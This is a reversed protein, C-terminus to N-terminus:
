ILASRVANRVATRFCSQQIRYIIGIPEARKAFLWSAMHRKSGGVCVDGERAKFSCVEVLVWHIARWALCSSKGRRRNAVLVALGGGPEGRSLKWSMAFASLSDLQGACANRESTARGM